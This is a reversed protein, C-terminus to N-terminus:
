AALGWERLALLAEHPSTVVAYGDGIAQAWAEFQLQEDTQKNPPVKCELWLLDRGRAMLDPMGRTYGMAKRKAANRKQEEGGPFEGNTGLLRVDPLLM